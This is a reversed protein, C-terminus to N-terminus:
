SHHTKCWEEYHDYYNGHGLTKDNASLWAFFYALEDYQQGTLNEEMYGLADHFNGTTKLANFILQWLGDDKSVKFNELKSPEEIIFQPDDTLSIVKDLVDQMVKDSVDMQGCAWKFMRRDSLAIRVVELLFSADIGPILITTAEDFEAFAISENTNVKKYSM